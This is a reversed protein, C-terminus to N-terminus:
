VGIGGGSLIKSPTIFGPYGAKKIKLTKHLDTPLHELLQFDCTGLSFLDGDKLPVPDTVLHGALRVGNTSGADSLWYTQERLELWAHLASVTPDDIVIHCDARRGLAVRDSLEHISSTRGSAIQRLYSM